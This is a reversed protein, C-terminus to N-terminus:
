RLPIPESGPESDDDYPLVLGQTARSLHRQTSSLTHIDGSFWCEYGTSACFKWNVQFM